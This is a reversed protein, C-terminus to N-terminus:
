VPAASLTPPSCQLLSLPLLQLLCQQQTQIEQQQQKQQQQWEALGQMLSMMVQRRWPQQQV